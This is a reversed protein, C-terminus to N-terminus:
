AAAPREGEKVRELRVASVKYEPIKAVPDVHDATLRNAPAESYHFSLFVTGQPSRQTVRLRAEVVGRRSTVRVMDGESLDMRSADKPHIEVEPEPALGELGPSRRSMTGGHWQYLVRGTSLIFPYAEDPEEASPAYDVPSFLGLGRAFEGVHLIPTGPHDADPCPWQLGGEELRAHSMGAYQPTLVAMEDFIETASQYSWGGGLRRGLETLIEWDPKSDGFPLLAPRILQVRRETNTFTGRKEAFSVAPLIVDALEGTENVFLDLVALYDVARLAKEVHNLNPDSMMPNEGMIVMARIDGELAADMMETVTLGPTPSLDSYPVGWAQAFKRRVAEETVPQYGPFVNPL